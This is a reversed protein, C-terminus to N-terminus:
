DKIYGYKKLDGMSHESTDTRVTVEHLERYRGSFNVMYEENSCGSDFWSGERLICVFGSPGSARIYRYRNMGIM